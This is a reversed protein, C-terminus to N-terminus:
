RGLASELKGFAVPWRTEDDGFPVIVFGRDELIGRLDPAIDALAAAVYHSRWILDLSQGDINLPDSDPSPLERQAALDFWRQRLPDESAIPSEAVGNSTYGRDITVATLLGTTSAALRLLMEKADLDRRDIVDHDPQNYYSLLCKYCGAVCQTDEVSLLLDVTPLPEPREPIEFHMIRLAMRAVVSLAEEDTVLRTLVGAGGESAEYFLFGKRAERAPVPEAFVEGEELQFVAEIGRLLSHQVTALTTQSLGDTDPLLLLANKRDQVSPVIWQRPATTPDEAEGGGDNNRAWYGSVPDIRFGLQTRNARRRLGKNLRTITAGPGYSLRV